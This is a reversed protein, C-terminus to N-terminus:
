IIIFIKLSLCPNMGKRFSIIKRCLLLTETIYLISHAIIIEGAQYAGGPTRHAEYYKYFKVKGDTVLHLFVYSSDGPGYEDLGVNNYLSIMRTRKGGAIFSIERAQEPKLIQKKKNADWYKIKHQMGKFVPLESKYYFPVNFTVQITDNSKTIIYGPVKDACLNFRFILVILFLLPFKKMPYNELSFVFEM